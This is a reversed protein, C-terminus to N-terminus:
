GSIGAGRALRTQAVDLGAAHAAAHGTVAALFDDRQLAYLRSDITATVTPTRPVDHLLAIEGFYDDKHAAAHHGRADIDLEGEAVIYFRDGPDGARIVLEGASVSVPTLTAALREKAAISLPAFMPVREILDLEAAPAAQDIELLWRYTALTLLPLIAGVAVFAPRPGLAAVLAPAAISGLAVADMALGWLVGLVRTLIEDPVTRQLLTIATVDEVSNAAGVIALLVGALALGPLPAILAIPLGWFVLALGFAAALRRGGLTMAGFAGLLGGVGIVATLFGVVDASRHLVRFVAVVILVNLCGRVFAQAVALAVLLRPRPARAIARFGAGVVRALGDEKGAAALEVRGAVRVRGTLAAAALLLAAGGIFVVGVDAFAVLLGALLPGALAGLSEVTSTAGNSAILEQPTRALSPLLAQLAPRILTTAVGFLAAFLFVLVRDGALAAAGSAALAAAGALALAFLFRERRFRDGFSAALPAVAAAPLLRVLGAVGVASTGGRQYAFVGLAVFHAWEAAIAAGM